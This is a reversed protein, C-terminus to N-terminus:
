KKLFSARDGAATLVQERIFPYNTVLTLAASPSYEIEKKNEVVGSWSIISAAATRNAEEQMRAASVRRVRMESREQLMVATLKKQRDSDPGVVKMTIGIEEGTGPHVIKLDIGKEQADALDGLSSLDFGAKKDDTM